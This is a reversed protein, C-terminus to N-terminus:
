VGKMSGKELRGIWEMGVVCLWELHTCNCVVGIAADLLDLHQKSEEVLVIREVHGAGELHQAAGEVVGFVGTLWGAVRKAWDVVPQAM